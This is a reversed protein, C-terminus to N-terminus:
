IKKARVPFQWLVKARYLANGLDETILFSRVKKHVVKTDISDPKIVVNPASNGKVSPYIIGDTSDEMCIYALLSTVSYLRDSKEKKLITEFFIDCKIVAEMGKRSFVKKFYHYMEEFAPHIKWPVSNGQGYYSFLGIPRVFLDSETVSDLVCVIDDVSIDIESFVTGANNDNESLCGYFKSEFKRNMRGLPIIEKKEQSIYSLEQIDDFCQKDDDGSYKRARVISTGKSLPINLFVTVQLLNVLINEIQSDDLKVKGDIYDDLKKILNSIDKYHKHPNKNIDKAKSDILYIIRETLM